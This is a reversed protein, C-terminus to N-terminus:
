TYTELISTNSVGDGLGLGVGVGEGLGDGDGDGVGVDLGVGVTEGLGVGIIGIIFTGLRFCYESGQCLLKYSWVAKCCNFM